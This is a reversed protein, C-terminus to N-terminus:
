RLIRCGAIGGAAPGSGRGHDVGDVLDWGVVAREVVVRPPVEGLSRLGDHWRAVGFREFNGGAMEEADDAYFARLDAIEIQPVRVIEPLAEEAALGARQVGGM